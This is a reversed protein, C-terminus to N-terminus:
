QAPARVVTAPSVWEVICRSLYRFFPNWGVRMLAEISVTLV